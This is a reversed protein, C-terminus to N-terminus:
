YEISRMGVKLNDFSISGINYLELILSYPSKLKNIGGKFLLPVIKAEGAYIRFNSINCGNLMMEKGNSGVLKIDSQGLDIDFDSSKSRFQLFIVIDSGGVKRVEKVFINFDKDDIEDIKDRCSARCDCNPNGYSCEKKFINDFLRHIDFGNLISISYAVVLFLRM